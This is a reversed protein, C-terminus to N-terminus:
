SSLIESGLAKRVNLMLGERLLGEGDSLVRERQVILHRCHVICLSCTGRERMQSVEEEAVAAAVAEDKWWRGRWDRVQSGRLDKHALPYMQHCCLVQGEGPSLKISM